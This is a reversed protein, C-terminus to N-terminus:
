GTEGSGLLFGVGEPFDVFAFESGSDAATIFRSHVRRVVLKSVCKRAVSGLDFLQDGLRFLV